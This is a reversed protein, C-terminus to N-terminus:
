KCKYNLYDCHNKFNKGDTTTLMAEKEDTKTYKPHKMTNKLEKVQKDGEYPDDDVNRFRVYRDLRRGRINEHMNQIGLGGKATPGNILINPCDHPLQLWKRVYKNFLHDFATMLETTADSFDLHHLARATLIDRIIEIKQQAKLPCRDIKQLNDSMSEITIPCIKNGATNIIM